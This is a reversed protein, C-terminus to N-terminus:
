NMWKLKLEWKKNKKNKSLIVEVGVPQVNKTGACINRMVWHALFNFLLMV